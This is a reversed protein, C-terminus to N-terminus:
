ELSASFFFRYALCNTLHFFVWLLLSVMWRSKCLWYQQLQPWLPTFYSLKGLLALPILNLRLFFFFLRLPFFSFFSAFLFILLSLILTAVSSSYLKLTQILWSFDTWRFPLGHWKEPRIPLLSFHWSTSYTTVWLVNNVPLYNTDTQNNEDCIFVLLM